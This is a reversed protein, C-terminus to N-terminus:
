NQLRSCTPQMLASLNKMRHTLWFNAEKLYYGARDLLSFKLPKGLKYYHCNAARKIWDNDARRKVHLFSFPNSKRCEIRRKIQEPTREAYHCCMPSPGYVKSCRQPIRGSVSESWIEQPDNRFFRAERWNVKYYRRRETVPQNKDECEYNQMDKDTFYFQAQWVRMWYCNKRNAEQLMPRPDELVIEDADVIYWWDDASFLQNYQNYVRNRLQNKYVEASREAIVVRSDKQALETVLEWTGDTSHNDFIYINDCFRLANHLTEMIIDAENKVICIANLKM